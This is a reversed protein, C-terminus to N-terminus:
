TGCFRTANRGPKRKLGARDTGVDAGTVQTNGAHSPKKGVEMPIGLAGSLEEVFKQDNASEKGRAEHNFHALLLPSSGTLFCTVLYVSDAGGSVAAIRVRKERPKKRNRM